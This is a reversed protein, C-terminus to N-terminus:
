MFPRGVPRPAVDTAETSSSPLGMQFDGMTRASRLRKRVMSSLILRVSPLSLTSKSPAHSSAPRSGFTGRQVSWVCRSASQRRIDRIYGPSSQHFAHCGIRLPWALQWRCSGWNGGTFIAIMASLLRPDVSVHETRMRHSRHRESTRMKQLRAAPQRTCNQVFARSLRLHVGGGGIKPARVSPHDMHRTCLPCSSRKCRQQM